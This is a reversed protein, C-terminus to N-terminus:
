GIYLTTQGGYSCVFVSSSSRFTPTMDQYDRPTLAKIISKYLWKGSVEWQSSQQQIIAFAHKCKDPERWSSLIPTQKQKTKNTEQFSPQGQCFLQPPQQKPAKGWSKEGCSHLIRHLEHPWCGATQLLISVELISGQFFTHLPLFSNATFENCFTFEHEKIWM